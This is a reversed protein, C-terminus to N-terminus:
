FLFTTFYFFFRVKKLPLKFEFELSKFILEALFKVISNGYIGKVTKDVDVVTRIIERNYNKDNENERINLTLYVWLKSIVSFTEAAVSISYSHIEDNFFKYTM